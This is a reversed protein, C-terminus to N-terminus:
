TCLLGELRAIIRQRDAEPYYAHLADGLTIEDLAANVLGSRLTDRSKLSVVEDKPAYVVVVPASIQPLIAATDKILHRLAQTPRRSNWLLAPSLAVGSGALYAAKMPHHKHYFLQAMRVRLVAPSLPRLAFPCAILLLGKVKAPYRNASHLALLGGMSHGVLYVSDYARSCRDVEEFVHALWHAATARGFSGTDRGHGPLLPVSIACRCGLAAQALYTMQSPSGMFGHILIVMTKAGAPENLIPLHM